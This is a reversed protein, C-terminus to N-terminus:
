HNLRYTFGPLRAGCDMSEVVTNYKIGLMLNKAFRYDSNLSIM